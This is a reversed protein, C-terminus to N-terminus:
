LHAKGRRAQVGHAPQQAGIAQRTKRQAKATGKGRARHHHRNLRSPPGAEDVLDGTLTLCRYEGGHRQSQKQRVMGVIISRMVRGAHVLFRPRDPFSLGSSRSLKLYVEHVLATTDLMEDRGGSRLRNRAMRRLEAYTNAFM